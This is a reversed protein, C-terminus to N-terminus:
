CSLFSFTYCYLFSFTYCSLFFSIHLLIFFPFTYCSLFHTVLYFLFHTVLYFLFRTVLYFLFHTVLYFIHLLIFFFIHLLIFFFIHLLIFFSIHLLIFFFLMKQRLATHNNRNCNGTFTGCVSFCVPGAINAVFSEPHIRGNLFRTGSEVTQEIMKELSGCIWKMQVATYDVSWDDIRAPWTRSHVAVRRCRLSAM